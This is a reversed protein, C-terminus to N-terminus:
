YKGPSTPTKQRRGPRHGRRSGVARLFQDAAWRDADPISNATLMWRLYSTPVASL